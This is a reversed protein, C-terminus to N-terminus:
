TGEARDADAAADGGNDAEVLTRGYLVSGVIVALGIILIWVAFSRLSQATEDYLNTILVEIHPNRPKGITISRGQGITFLTVVAGLVFGIGVALAGKWKVPRLWIMVGALGIVLLVSVWLLARLANAIGSLEPVTGPEVLVFERFVDTPIESALEPFLTELPPMIADGVPTLDVVIGSQSGDFMIAHLQATVRTLLTQLREGDLMGAMFDVLLPSAVAVLPRDEALKAVALESIAVRSSELEFAAVTSEAFSESDALDRSVWWGFSALYVLVAMLVVSAGVAVKKATFM